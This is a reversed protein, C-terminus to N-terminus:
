PTPATGYGPPLASFFDRTVGVANNSDGGGVVLTAFALDGRYGAFWAHSGGAFEAEGTKGYVEGSGAIATGTGTTVVERMMPRLQDVVDRSLTAKPGEVTTERGLILQPVPATGNNAVTGAVLALGLPSVLVKGQGFGDVSRDVLDNAIPVSGSVADLGPITYDLGVGMAAAAHALDAPGMRSALHAFTTNCSQAFARQMPVTGLAFQDYNPIVRQGIEISGPCPVMTGPQALNDSIAAAATVMKFTSGPPYLGTTAISGQRDAAPNQAVGLIRGTSPQIVVMAIPFGNAADVAGEAANQVQRSLSLSIAPAPQAPKDVLIDADLGNPNVTAVRWGVRGDVEGDVVKRVQSLLAPAFSPDTPVLEAQENTVVGPIALQDRLRDFDGSSLRTIPYPGDSATSEEAIRQADLGPQSASLAAVLRTASDAVSGQAAAAKADFNVGIVTGSTMVQSGDAENVAARPPETIRLSLRQNAGLDPHIDTSVWRVGWGSDSRTVKVSGPYTWERGRPLQWTYTVDIDATDGTIDAAGTAYRLGTASLGSWTDDLAAQATAPDDTLAAAGSMDQRSVAGLFREVAQRPGDDAVGTCAVTGGLLAVSVAVACLTIRRRSNM